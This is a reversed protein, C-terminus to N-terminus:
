SGYLSNPYDRRCMYGWEDCGNVITTTACNGPTSLAKAKAYTQPTSPVRMPASKVFKPAILSIPAGMVEIPPAPVKSPTNRDPM